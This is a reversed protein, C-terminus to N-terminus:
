NVLRLAAGVSGSHQGGERDGSTTGQPTRGERHHRQRNGKAPTASHTLSSGCVGPTPQCLLPPSGARQCLGRPGECAARSFKPKLALKRIMFHKPCVFSIHGLCVNGSHIYPIFYLSLGRAAQRLGSSTLLATPAVTGVEGWCVM